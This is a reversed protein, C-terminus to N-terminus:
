YRAVVPRDGWRYNIRATVMDFDQRIRDTRFAIAPGSVTTFGINRDGRFFHDWEVAVSWNPSFGGYEGGIGAVGSWRTERATDFVSNTATIVGNYRDNTVGAGGKAYLLFDSWTYGM